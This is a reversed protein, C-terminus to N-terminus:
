EDLDASRLAQPVLLAGNTVLLNLAEYFFAERQKEADMRATQPRSSSATSPRSVQLSSRPSYVAVRKPTLVSQHELAHQHHVNNGVQFVNKLLEMAQNRTGM